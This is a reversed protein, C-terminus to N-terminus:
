PIGSIALRKGHQWGVTFSLLVDDNMVSKQCDGLPGQDMYDAVHVSITTGFTGQSRSYSHRTMWGSINCVEV